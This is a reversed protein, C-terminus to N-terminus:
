LICPSSARQRAGSVFRVAFIKVCPLSMNERLSYLKIYALLMCSLSIRKERILLGTVIVFKSGAVKNALINCTVQKPCRFSRIFFLFTIVVFNCMMLSIIRYLIKRRALVSSFYDIKACCSTIFKTSMSSSKELMETRQPKTEQRSGQRPKNVLSQGTALAVQLSYRGFVLLRAGTSDRTACPPWQRFRRFIIYCSYVFLASLKKIRELEARYVLIYIPSKESFSFQKRGWCCSRHYSLSLLICMIRLFLLGFASNIM